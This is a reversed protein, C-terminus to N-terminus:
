PTVGFIVGDEFIMMDLDERIHDTEADKSQEEEVKIEVFNESSKLRVTSTNTGYNSLLGSVPVPDDYIQSYYYTSWNSDVNRGLSVLEYSQDGSMGEAQPVAIWHLDISPIYIDSEQGQFRLVVADTEVSQERITVTKSQLNGMAQAAVVPLSSFSELFVVRDNHSVRGKGAQLITGDVLEHYGSEVVMYSIVEEGHVGDQYEWEQLQFVLNNDSTELLKVTVPDSDQESVISMVVVPDLYDRSLNLQHTQNRDLQEADVFGSEGISVSPDVEFCSLNIRHMVSKQIGDSIYFQIEDVGTFFADPSYSFNPYEGSLIGYRPATKMLFSLADGDADEASLTFDVCRNRYTSLIVDSSTPRQNSPHDVISVVIKAERSKNQGDSVTYGIVDEGLQNDHPSYVFKDGLVQADGKSASGNLQFTLDDAELDAALLTIEGMTGPYVELTVDYAEPPENELLYKRFKGPDLCLAALTESAHIMETDMSTEEEIKVSFSQESVEKLRLSATDSENMTQMAVFVSPTESFSEPMTSLSWSQNVSGVVYGAQQIDDLHGAGVEWAMWHLREPQHEPNSEQGQILVSFNSKTVDYVRTVVSLPDNTTVVQSFVIPQERFPLPFSLAGDTHGRSVGAQIVSGDKMVHRGAEVVVYSIQEDVHKGDAYDWEDIQVRFNKNGVNKVRLNIPQSGNFSQSTVHVIPNTYSRSLTVLTWEDASSQTLTLTGSEGVIMQPETTTASQAQSWQGENYQLALDRTKVRYTYTMEADLGEDVYTRSDIWGSDHSGDPFSMNEFYYQVPFTDEAKTVTMTISESDIAEPASSFYIPNPMPPDVDNMLMKYANIRGGSICKNAMSDFRDVSRMLHNRRQEVSLGPHVSEFLALLGAVHPAAMSTGNWTSMGGGVITSYISEGPAFVHVKNKGYSSWSAAEDYWNSAAVSIVNPFDYSAPYMPNEDNDHGFNGAAAVFMVGQDYARQIAEKVSRSQGSMGYSNSTAICGVSTAYDIAPVVDSSTFSVRLAVISVKWCVGTSNRGNNGTAGVIGACHTGHNHTDMPNPDEARFDYGYIDDVYGNGDDDIRNGPIEGPNKWMNDKLDPHTYDVGGDIM